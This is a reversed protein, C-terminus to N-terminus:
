PAPCSLQAPSPDTASLGYGRPFLPAACGQAALQAFDFPLQQDTRPWTYALKGTFPADGFLGDAVGEGETGPLWAAVLADWGPLASTVLRPRGSLLVVVLKRSHARVAEALKLDSSPLALSTLDGVGEAYPTEALVAIGVDATTTLADFTGFADYVVRTRPSVAQRIGQLLTTGPTVNGAQGQWSITWGGSQLGIDDAGAGAVLILPTTKALPLTHQDNKLLVLSERVAQRALQRHAATGVLALNAPDSLPHEFLGLEFKVRLIRRVADDIRAPSVEGQQVAQTLTAIFTKYDNPVMIMDLGANLSAVVQAHYDGPLQNIAAWDSVLFGSFGLEGKLVGTLLAPNAHMKTGRWSSFSVMISQAGASLAAQYPPLFLRRLDTEDVKVDGQDLLYGPTTASGWATGGDGIFHKPTALVALPSNLAPGQLGQVYAASLATVLATDESYGEYTRGWRIDQPVAVVPAFDWRIGTAAVEEATARGIRRVLDADGTAGLGINHPFITAGQLNNHGHVADVGYLVPIRLRTQLAAQQFGDVMAAWAPATNPAPASGGGSLLGGIFYTTVDAPALSAREVQTMQGIKEALTMRALLDDVRAAVPQSADLYLAPGQTATPAAAPPLGATAAPAPTTALPLAAATSPAPTAPAGCAALLLFAFLFLRPVRGTWNTKATMRTLRTM